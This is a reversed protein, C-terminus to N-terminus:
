FGWEKPMRYAILKEDVNKCVLVGAVLLVPEAIEIERSDGSTVDVLMGGGGVIPRTGGRLISPYGHFGEKSWIEQGNRFLYSRLGYEPITSDNPRDTGSILYLDGDWRASTENIQKLRRESLVRGTAFDRVQFGDGTEMGFTSGKHSGIGFLENKVTLSKDRWLEKGSSDFAISGTKSM